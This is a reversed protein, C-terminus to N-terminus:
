VIDFQVWVPTNDIALYYRPTASVDCWCPNAKDRTMILEISCAHVPFQLDVVVSGTGLATSENLEALSKGAWQGM